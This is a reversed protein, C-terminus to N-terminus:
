LRWGSLGAGANTGQGFWRCRGSRTLARGRLPKANKELLGCVSETRRRHPRSDGIQPCTGKARGAGGRSETSGRAPGSDPQIGTRLGQTAAGFSPTSSVPIDRRCGGLNRTRYHGTSHYEHQNARKKFTNWDRGRVNADIKLPPKM